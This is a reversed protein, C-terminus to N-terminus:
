IPNVRTQVRSVGGGGGCMTAKAGAAAWLM